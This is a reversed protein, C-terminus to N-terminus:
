IDIQLKPAKDRDTYDVWYDAKFDEKKEYFKTNRFVFDQMKMWASHSLSYEDIKVTSFNQAFVQFNNILPYPNYNLDYFLYTEKKQEKPCHREVAQFFPWIFYKAGVDYNPFWYSKIKCM